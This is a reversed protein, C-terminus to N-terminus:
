HVLVLNVEQLLKRGGAGVVIHLNAGPPLPLSRQKCVRWGWRRTSWQIIQRTQVEMVEVEGFEWPLVPLEQPFRLDMLLTGATSFTQSGQGFSKQISFLTAIVFAITILLPKRLFKKMNIIKPQSIKKRMKVTIKIESHLEM